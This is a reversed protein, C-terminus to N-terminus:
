GVETYLWGAKEWLQFIDRIYGHLFIPWNPYFTQSAFNNAFVLWKQPSKHLFILILPCVEM